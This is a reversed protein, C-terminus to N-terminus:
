AEDDFDQLPPGRRNTREQELDELWKRRRKEELIEQTAKARASDIAHQEAVTLPRPKKSRAM